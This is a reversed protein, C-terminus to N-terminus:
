DRVDRAAIWIDGLEDLGLCSPLAVLDPENRRLVVYGDRHELRRPAHQRVLVGLAIRTPAIVLALLEDVLYLADRDLASLPKEADLVGVDLRVRTRGRVQGDVKGEERWPLRDHSHGQRHATM